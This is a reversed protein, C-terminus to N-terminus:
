LSGIGHVSQPPRQSPNKFISNKNNYIQHKVYSTDFSTKLLLILFSSCSKHVSLLLCFLSITLVFWGLVPTKHTRKQEVPRKRRECMM